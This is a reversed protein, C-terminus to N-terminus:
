RAPPAEKGRRAQPSLDARLAPHLADRAKDLEDDIATLVLMTGTM